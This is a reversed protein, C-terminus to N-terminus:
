ESPQEAFDGGRCYAEISLKGLHHFEYISLFGDMDLDSDKFMVKCTLAYREHSMGAFIKLPQINEETLKEEEEETGDQM